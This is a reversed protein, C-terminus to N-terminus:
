RVGLAAPVRIWPDEELAEASVELGEAHASRNPCTADPDVMQLSGQNGEM